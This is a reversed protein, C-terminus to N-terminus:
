WSLTYIDRAVAHDCSPARLCKGIDIFDNKKNHKIATVHAAEPRVPLQSAAVGFPLPEMCRVYKLRLCCPLRMVPVTRHVSCKKEMVSLEPSGSFKVIVAAMGRLKPSRRTVYRPLSKPSSSCKAFTDPKPGSVGKTARRTGAPSPASGARMSGGGKCGTRSLPRARVGGMPHFLQFLNAFRMSSAVTRPIASAIAFLPM